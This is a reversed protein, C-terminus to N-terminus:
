GFPQQVTKGGQQTWVRSYYSANGEYFDMSAISKWASIMGHSIAQRPELQTLARKFSQMQPMTIVM